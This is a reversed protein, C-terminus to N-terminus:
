GEFPRSLNYLRALGKDAHRLGRATYPLTASLRAARIVMVALTGVVRRCASLAVKALPLVPRFGCTRSVLSPSDPSSVAGPSPLASPRCRYHVRGAPCARAPWYPPRDPDNRAPRDLAGRLPGLRVGGSASSTIPYALRHREQGRQSM